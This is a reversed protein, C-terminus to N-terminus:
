HLLGEVKMRRILKTGAVFLDEPLEKWTYVRELLTRKDYMYSCVVEALDSFLPTEGVLKASCQRYCNLDFVVENQTQMEYVDFNTRFTKNHMDVVIGCLSSRFFDADYWTSGECLIYVYKKRKVVVSVGRTIFGQMGFGDEDAFYADILLQFQRYVDLYEVHKARYRNNPVRKPHRCMKGYIEYKPVNIKVRSISNSLHGSYSLPEATTILPTPYRTRNQGPTHLQEFYHSNSNRQAFHTMVRKKERICRSM